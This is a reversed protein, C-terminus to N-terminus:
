KIKINTSATPNSGTRQFLLSAHKGSLIPAVPLSQQQLAKYTKKIRCYQSNTVLPKQRPQSIIKEGSHVTLKRTITNKKTFSKEKVGNHETTRVYGRHTGVSCLPTFSFDSVFLFVSLTCESSCTM